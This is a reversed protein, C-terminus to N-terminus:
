QDSGERKQAGSWLYAPPHHAIRHAEMVVNKFTASKNFEEDDDSLPRCGVARDDIYVDAFPKGRGSWIKDFPLDNDNLWQRVLDVLYTTWFAIRGGPLWRLESPLNDEEIPPNVDPSCRVTHIVIRFGERRLEELFFRAGPIVPGFKEVGEWNDFKALVGDLDVCATKTSM